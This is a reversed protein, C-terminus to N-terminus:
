WGRARRLSASHTELRFYVSLRDPKKIEGLVLHCGDRREGGLRSKNNRGSNEVWGVGRQWEAGRLNLQRKGAEGNAVTQGAAVM